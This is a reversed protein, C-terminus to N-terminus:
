APTADRQKVQQLERNAELLRGLLDVRAVDAERMMRALWISNQMHAVFATDPALTM